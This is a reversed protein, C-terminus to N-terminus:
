MFEGNILLVEIDASMIFADVILEDVDFIFVALADVALLTDILQLLMADTLPLMVVSCADVNFLVFARRTFKFVFYMSGSGLSIVLSTNKYVVVVDPSTLIPVPSVVPLILMPFGVDDTFKAVNFALVILEEM